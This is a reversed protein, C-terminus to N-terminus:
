RLFECLESLHRVLFLHLFDPENIVKYLRFATAKNFGPWTFLDCMKAVVHRSLNGAATIKLGPSAAASRLLVLTNRAVAPQQTEEHTLDAARRIPGTVPSPPRSPAAFSVQDLLTWAPEIGGLWHKASPDKLIGLVVV